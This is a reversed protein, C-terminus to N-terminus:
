CATKRSRRALSSGRCGSRLFEDTAELGGPRGDVCPEDHGDNCLDPTIFSSTRRRRWACTAPLADLDVVHADCRDDDIISHFYIFPNHRTPTCTTRADASDPTDDQPTSPERTTPVPTGMDEMYGKWTLGKAELQDAIM